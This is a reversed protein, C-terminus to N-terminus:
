DSLCIFFLDCLVPFCYIVFLFILQSLFLVQARVFGCLAYTSLQGNYVGTDDLHGINIQVSAHDKSTILRNTASSYGFLFRIDVLSRCQFAHFMSVSSSLVRLSVVEQPYLSRHDERGREAHSEISQIVSVCLNQKSLSPSLLKSSLNLMRCKQNKYM